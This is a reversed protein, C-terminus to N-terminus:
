HAAAVINSSGGRGNRASALIDRANRGSCGFYRSGSLWEAEDAYAFLMQGQKLTDIVQQAVQPRLAPCGFSRGLRGQRQAQAPDVYPAGHMVILRDRANDNIGPELGDMRLSYGNGGVYTEGTTFLGLSTQHSSDRNSFSTAYNEGSGRGHAVHETYLLTTRDLDFVWLRKQTSPRTYDIVALRKGAVHVNGGKLACDRAEVALAIVGPDADPALRHLQQALEANRGPAAAVPASISPVPQPLAATPRKEPVSCSVLAAAALAIFTLHFRTM